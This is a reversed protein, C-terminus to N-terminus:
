CLIIICSDRSENIKPKKYQSEVKTFLSKAKKGEFVCVVCVCEQGADEGELVQDADAEWGRGASTLPVGEPITPVLAVGLPM